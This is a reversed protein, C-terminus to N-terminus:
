KKKPEEPKRESSAPRPAKWYPTVSYHTYLGNIWDFSNMKEWAKPDFEPANKLLEKTLGTHLKLDGDSDREVRLASWPLPFHKEGLGFAGGSALVVYAVRADTIDLVVEDIKGVDDNAEGLVEHGNIKSTTTVVASASAAQAPTTDAPKKDTPTMVPKMEKEDFERLAKVQEETLTVRAEFKHADGGVGGTLQLDTWALLRKKDGIGAVGGSSLVVWALSGDNTNLVLDDIKGVTSNKAGKVELGVIHGIPHLDFPRVAAAAVPRADQRSLPAAALLDGSLSALAVSVIMTKTNM